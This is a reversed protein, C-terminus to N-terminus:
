HSFPDSDFHYGVRKNGFTSFHSVETHFGFELFWRYAVNTEIEKMTQRMSRKGFVCQIMTLKFLVM